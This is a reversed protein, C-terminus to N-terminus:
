GLRKGQRGHVRGLGVRMTERVGEIKLVWICWGCLGHVWRCGVAMGKKLVEDESGDGELSSVM